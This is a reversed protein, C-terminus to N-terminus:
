RAPARTSSARSGSGSRAPGTSRWGTSAARRSRGAGLQLDREGAKRGCWRRPLRRRRGPDPPERAQARPRPDLDRRDGSRPRSSALPCCARTRALAASRLALATARRDARRPRPGRSRRLVLQPRAAGTTATSWRAAARCRSRACARSASRAAADHSGSRSRTASWSRASTTSASPSSRSAARTSCIAPSPSSRPRTAGARAAELRAVGVRGLYLSGPETGTGPRPTSSSASATPCSRRSGTRASRAARRFGRRPRARSRGEVPVALLPGTFTPAYVISTTRAGPRAASTRARDLDARCRSRRAARRSRDVGPGAPHLLRHAPQRAGLVPLARRRHRAAQAGRALRAAAGLARARRRRRARSRSRGDTPRSPSAACSARAPPCSSRSSPSCPAAAARRRRGTRDLAGRASIRPPSRRPPAPREWGGAAPARRACASDGAPREARARRQGGALVEEIVIRADAIDHLRNKPNRELCRRLLERLAARRRRRCRRWTSRPECCRRRAHRFRDRGRLAAQRHADRLARRRLGLHRRAQRRCGGRAQEPAM